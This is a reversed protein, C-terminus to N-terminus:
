VLVGENMVNRLLPSDGQDYRPESFFVCCITLGYDLSVDSIIGGSRFVEEAADVEDDLVVLVDVDSDPDMDGRARSGFLIMHKLRDDYLAEFRRRLDVLLQRLNDDM